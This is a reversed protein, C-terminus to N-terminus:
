LALILDALFSRVRDEDDEQELKDSDFQFSINVDSGASVSVVIGPATISVSVAQEANLLLVGAARLLGDLGSFSQDNGIMPAGSTASAM